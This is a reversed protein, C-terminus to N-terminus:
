SIAPYPEHQLHQEAEAIAANLCDVAKRWDDIMKPLDGKKRWAYKFADGRRLDCFMIGSSPMTRQLSWPTVQQGEQYRQTDEAKMQRM